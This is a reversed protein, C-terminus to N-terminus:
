WLPQSPDLPFRDRQRESAERGGDSQNATLCFVQMEDKMTMSYSAMAPWCDHLMTIYVDVGEKKKDTGNPPEKDENAEQDDYDQCWPGITWRITIVRM